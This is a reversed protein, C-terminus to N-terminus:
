PAPARDQSMDQWDHCVHEFEYAAALASLRALANYLRQDTQGCVCEAPQNPPSLECYRYFMMGRANLNDLASRETNARIFTGIVAGGIMYVVPESVFTNTVARTPIAEQVIVATISKRGKGVAMKNRDKRNMAVIEDPSHVVMIGMGYTGSDSKVFVHPVDSIGYEAYKARTRQLVADVVAAVRARGAETAFTCNTVLETDVDLLWPDFELARAMARVLGRYCEFFKAKSRKHWGLCPPPIVRQQLGDLWSLVGASLDNNLLIWDYPAGETDVLFDDDRRVPEVPLHAGDHTVLENPTVGDEAPLAAITVHLGASTLIDRLSRLHSNYYPNRSHAEPVLLVRTHPVRDFRQALYRKVEEMATQCSRECLNNFGAPFLNLDVCAAKVGSDRLDASAYFPLCHGRAAESLWAEMADLRSALRTTINATMANGGPSQRCDAYGSMLRLPLMRRRAM